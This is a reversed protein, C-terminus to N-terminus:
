KIGPDRKISTNFLSQLLNFNHDPPQLLSLPGWKATAKRGSRAIKDHNHLAVLAFITQLYTLHARAAIDHASTWDTSANVVALM